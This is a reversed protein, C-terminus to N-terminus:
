PQGIFLQGTSQDSHWITMNVVTNMILPWFFNLFYTQKRDANQYNKAQGPFESVRLFSEWLTDINLCDVNVEGELPGLSVGHDKLRQTRRPELVRIHWSNQSIEFQVVKMNALGFIFLTFDWQLWWSPSDHVILVAPLFTHVCIKSNWYLFICSNSIHSTGINQLQAERICNFWSLAVYM